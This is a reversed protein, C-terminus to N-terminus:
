SRVFLIDLTLSGCTFIIQLKTQIIKKQFNSGGRRCVYGYMNVLKGNSFIQKFYSKKECKEMVYVSFRACPFIPSLSACRMELANSFLV